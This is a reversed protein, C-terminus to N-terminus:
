SIKRLKKEIKNYNLKGNTLYEFKFNAFTKIYNKKIKLKSTLFEKEFDLSNIKDSLLNIKNNFYVILYKNKKFNSKLMDEIDNLHIRESDLKIYRDKRGSLNLNNNDDIFGLDGTEILFKNTRKKNLDKFSEAYGIMVNKGYFYIKGVINKKLIKENNKIFIKGGGFPKGVTFIKLRDKKNKYKSFSIRPSAETQGYMNFINIKFNDAKKILFELTTKSIKGGAIAFFKFYKGFNLDLKKLIEYTEPVGYFCNIKEFLFLNKFKKSIISDKFLIIKAGSSLHTNLISLGYSYHFPLNALTIHNKNLRLYKIINLTNKYINDKSIMVMKSSGTTGSTPLMMILENNLKHLYADNKIILYNSYKFLIKKKNTLKYNQPIFIFNPRYDNILKNLYKPSLRYDIIAIVYNLKLLSIYIKVFDSTNEALLFCLSRKEGSLRHTLKKIDRILDNYNIIKEDDIIALNKKFNSLNKFLM